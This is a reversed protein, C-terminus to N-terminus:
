REVHHNPHVTLKRTSTTNTLHNGQESNAAATLQLDAISLKRSGVEAVDTRTSGVYVLGTTIQM